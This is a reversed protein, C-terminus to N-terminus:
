PALQGAFWRENIGFDAKLPDLNVPDKVKIKRGDDGDL